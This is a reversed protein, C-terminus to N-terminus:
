PTVVKIRFSAGAGNGGDHPYGNANVGPNLTRTRPSAGSLEFANPQIPNNTDGHAFGNAGHIIHAKSDANFVTVVIGNGTQTQLPQQNQGFAPGWEDRYETGAARLADINMPITLTLKPAVKFNANATASLGGATGTVVIPTSQNPATAPTTVDAQIVLKGPTGPTVQLPAATAGGPLGTVAISVPANFGGKPEVTVDIETKDGLGVSPTNTSLTLAFDANSTGPTSPAGPKAAANPNGPDPTNSDTTNSDDQASGEPPPGASRLHSGNTLQGTSPADCGLAAVTSLCALAGLFRLSMAM